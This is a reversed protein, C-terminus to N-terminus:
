FGDKPLESAEVQVLEVLSCIIDLLFPTLPRIKVSLM